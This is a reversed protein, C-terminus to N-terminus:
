QQNPRFACPTKSPTNLENDDLEVMLNTEEILEDFIRQNQSLRRAPSMPPLEEDRNLM